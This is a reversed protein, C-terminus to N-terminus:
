GGALIPEIERAIEAELGSLRDFLEATRLWDKTVAHYQAAGFAEARYVMLRAAETRGVRELFGAADISRRAGLPLAFNTLLGAFASHPRDRLASAARGFAAAGGYAVPGAPPSFVMEQATKLTEALIQDASIRREARFNFRLTYRGAAYRIEAANWARVLDAMPLVVFPFFQPDHLQVLDGEMKLAVIFHDAGRKHSHSPDYLLGGLDVPGVLVPGNGLAQRLAKEATHASAIRRIDCTWGITHLARSLGQDPDTKDGPSPFFAPPQVNVFTAGFPMGTMCELLGVDPVDAMGAHALCIHLSNSYCYASNGSYPTVM